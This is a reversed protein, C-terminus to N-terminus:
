PSVDWVHILCSVVIYQLASVMSHNRYVRVFYKLVWILSQNLTHLASGRGRPRVRKTWMYAWTGILWQFFSRSTVPCRPTETNTSQETRCDSVQVLINDSWASILRRDIKNVSIPVYQRALPPLNVTNKQNFLEWYWGISWQIAQVKFSMSKNFCLTELPGWFPFIFWKIVSQICTILPLGQTQFHVIEKVTTNHEAFLVIFM